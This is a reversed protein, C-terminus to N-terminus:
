GQPRLKRGRGGPRPPPPNTEEAPPALLERRRDEPLLAFARAAADEVERRTNVNSGTARPKFADDQPDLGEILDFWDKPLAAKGASTYWTWWWLEGPPKDRTGHSPVHRRVGLARYGEARPDGHDQLWDAFVLRTQWDKPNADLKAQFDDETTM